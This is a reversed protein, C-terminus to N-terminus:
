AGNVVLKGKDATGRCARADYSCSGRVKWAGRLGRVCWGPARPPGAGCSSIRMGAEHQHTDRDGPHAAHGERNTERGQRGDDGDRQPDGSGAVSHGVTRLRGLHGRRVARRSASRCVPRGHSCRVRLAKAWRSAWPDVWRNAPRGVRRRCRARVTWRRRHRRRHRRSRHHRNVKGPDGGAHPDQQPQEHHHGHGEPRHGDRHARDEVPVDFVTHTLQKRLLRALEGVEDLLAHVRLGAPAETVRSPQELCKQPTLVRVPVLLQQTQGVGGRAAGVDDPLATVEGIM